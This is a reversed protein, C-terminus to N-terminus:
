AACIAVVSLFRMSFPSIRLALYYPIIYTDRIVQRALYYMALGMLFLSTFSHTDCILPLAHNCVRSSPPLHLHLRSTRRKSPVWEPFPSDQFIRGIALNDPTGALVCGNPIHLHRATLYLCSSGPQHANIHTRPPQSPALTEKVPSPLSSRASALAIETHVPSPASSHFACPALLDKRFLSM